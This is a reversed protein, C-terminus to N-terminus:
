LVTSFAFVSFVNAIKLCVLHFPTTFPALFGPELVVGSSMLERGYMRGIMSGRPCKGGLLQGGGGPPSTLDM